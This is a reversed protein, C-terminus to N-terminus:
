SEGNDVIEKFMNINNRVVEGDSFRAKAWALVDRRMQMLEENTLSSMEKIVSAFLGPQELPLDWGVGMERLGRWPTRDSILVPVGACFAETIVHGYNEGLTPLFFLDSQSLTDLVNVPDVTGKYKVSINAPLSNVKERCAKWYDLDEIPGYVLFEVQADIMSLIELAFTLNKMRSVRSLFVLRLKNSSNPRLERANSFSTINPAVITPCNTGFVSEIDGKEYRSSAQFFVKGHLYFLKFFLIYVKKKFSKIALASSALEGRPALLKNVRVPFSLAFPIITFFFSFFSNLYIIDFRKSWILKAMKVVSKFDKRLYLVKDGNIDNWEGLKVNSYQEKDGLDRDGCVIFYNIDKSRTAETLNKITKIPGGGKFGPLYLDTFLLINM